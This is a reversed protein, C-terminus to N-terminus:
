HRLGGRKLRKVKLGYITGRILFYPFHILFYYPIFVILHRLRANLLEFLFLNRLLLYARRFIIRNFSAAGAHRVESNKVCVVRFGKNRVRVNFDAEDFYARYMVRFLGTKHFVESKVLAACGLVADIDACVEGDDTFVDRGPRLKKFRGTWLNIRYGAIGKTEQNDMPLIVPSLVGIKEDSQAAELLRILSDKDVTVDSNLLWLFDAGQKLGYEIGQNLAKVYGINQKNRILKVEPFRKSVAEPSGDDSANDILLIQLAHQPYNLNLLSEICDLVFYKGNWNIVTILVFPRRSEKTRKENKNM